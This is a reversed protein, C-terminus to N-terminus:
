SSYIAGTWMVMLTFIQLKVNYKNVVAVFM